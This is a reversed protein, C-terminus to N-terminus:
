FSRVCLKFLDLPCELMSLNSLHLFSVDFLNEEIVFKACIVDHKMESFIFAIESLNDLVFLRVHLKKLNMM